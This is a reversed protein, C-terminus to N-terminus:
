RIRRLTTLSKQVLKRIRKLFPVRQGQIPDRPIYPDGPSLRYKAFYKINDQFLNRRHQWIKQGHVQHPSEWGAYVVTYLMIPNPIYKYILLSLIAQNHRGLTITSIIHEEVSAVQLAENVINGIIGEIRFGVVGGNFTMKGIRFKPDVGWGTSAAATASDTLLNYSPNIFYGLRDIANFIDDPPQLAVVGSDMWLVDRAPADNWCWVKWTFHKRWLPVFPPVKKVQINNNCFISLTDEDMGLVYILVLAHNPWNLALSGLLALLAPGFSVSAGTIILKETNTM